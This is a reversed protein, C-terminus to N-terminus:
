PFDPLEPLDPFDPFFLETFDLEPLFLEALFLELLFLELLFDFEFSLLLPVIFLLSADSIQSHSEGLGFSRAGVSSSNRTVYSLAM